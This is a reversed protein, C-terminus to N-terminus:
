RAMEYIGIMDWSCDKIHDALIKAEEKGLESLEIDIRGQLKKARKWKSEGHRVICIKSM